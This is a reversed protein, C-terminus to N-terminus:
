QPKSRGNLVIRKTRQRKQQQQVCFSAWFFFFLFFFTPIYYLLYKHLYSDSITQNFAKASRLHVCCVCRISPLFFYVNFPQFFGGVLSNQKICVSKWQFKLKSLPDRKKQQHFIKENFFGFKICLIKKRLIVSDHTNSKWTCTGILFNCLKPANPQQQKNTLSSCPHTVTLSVWTEKMIVHLQHSAGFFFHIVLFCFTIDENEAKKKNIVRKINVNQVVYVCVCM